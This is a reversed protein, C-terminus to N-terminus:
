HSPTFLIDTWLVSKIQLTASLHQDCHCLASPHVMITAWLTKLCHAEFQMGRIHWLLPQGWSSPPHGFWASLLLWTSPQKWWSGTMRCLFQYCVKLYSTLRSRMNPPIVRKEMSRLYCAWEKWSQLDAPVVMDELVLLIYLSPSGRASIFLEQRWHMTLRILSVNPFFYSNHLSLNGQQAQWTAGWSYRCWRVNWIGTQFM